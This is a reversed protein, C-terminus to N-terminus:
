TLVNEKEQEAQEILSDFHLLVSYQGSQYMITSIDMSPEVLPQSFKRHLLGSLLKLEKLNAKIVDNVPINALQTNSM